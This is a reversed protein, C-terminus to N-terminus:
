LVGQTPAEKFTLEVDYTGPSRFKSRVELLRVNVSYGPGRVGFMETLGPIDGLSFVKHRKTRHFEQIDKLKSASVTFTGEFTGLDYAGEIVYNHIDYSQYVQYNWDRNAKYKADLCSLEPLTTAGIFTLDGPEEISLTMNLSMGKFTKHLVDGIDSIVVPIPLTYDINEGFIHEGDSFTQLQCDFGGDRIGQLHEILGNIYDEDGYTDVECKYFDMDPGRDLLAINGNDLNIPIVSLDVSSKFKEKIKLEYTTNDSNNRLIM